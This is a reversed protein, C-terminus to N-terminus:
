QEREASPSIGFAKKYAQSFYAPSNFGVKFLIESVTEDSSQLLEKAKLLRIHRIYNSTSMGTLAKIKRHLQSRSLHLSAALENVSFRDDSLHDLVLQRVKHVFHQNPNEPEAPSTIGLSLEALYKQQLVQRTALLQDLRILLERKEFPKTLYADAGSSLGKLKDAVTTKATLLIVPIHNTRDDQKVATCLEFGDMKPMMVDSIVIDPVKEFAKELGEEGNRSIILQYHDSLCTQLYQIIDLNDEIILLVPLGDEVQEERTATSRFEPSAAGEVNQIKSPHTAFPANNQIPLHLTFTAGEDAKSEVQIEGDMLKVLEKVLALGIGTGQYQNDNKVQHFRNFIHPLEKDPIGIGTDTVKVELLPSNLSSIRKVVVLVKGYENTFKIANSLLNTLITELKKADFDMSLLQEESYCQLNVRKSFAMSEHSAVLYKIFAIVDQQQLHLQEKNVELKSLQLLQNVMSLLKQSNRKILSTKPLVEQSLHKELEETMGQIVTLPTRFEHTINTYISSKLYNIEKLRKGEEMALRRSLQLQYLQYTLFSFALFYSLYAWWTHWWPPTITFAYSMPESWLNSQGKAKVELTYKGHPLNRYDVKPESQPPSWSKDVGEMKYSYQIKSPAAWDIASFHFTLHNFHHPLRLRTPLNQFAIVSDLNARFGTGAFLERGYDEDVLRRYDIFTQNVQLHSVKVIQPPEDSLQFRDLDFMKLGDMTGFWLRNRQDVVFSRRSLNSHNLGIQRDFSIFQVEVPNENEGSFARMQNSRLLSIGKQTSIWLNEEKDLALSSINNHALGNETSYSKFGTGDFRNLGDETGLWINGEADELIARVYNNSLGEQSTYNVFYTGNFCSVGGGLMGFWLRDRSDEYITGVDDSIFGEKESYQLFNEGDFRIIGGAFAGLWIHGHKDQYLARVDGVQLGDEKTFDRIAAGTFESVGASGGLWLNQQQDVLISLVGRQILSQPTIFHTIKEGDYKHLGKDTGLWLNGNVDQAMSMIEEEQLVEKLALHKFGRRNIRNVGTNWTCAWINHQDDKLLHRVYNSSLGDEATYHTFASGNFVSVGGGMYGFWMYGEEDELISLVSNSNLGQETTYTHFSTGDYRVVGGGWTGFWLHGQKDEIIAHVDNTGKGAGVDYHTFNLGDFRHLGTGEGTGIWLQNRSDEFISIVENFALGEDTTYHTFSHGDYRSLGGRTGFWLNGKHDECISLVFNHPLGNETNFYTFHSGDYRCVGGDRTGMWIHGKSDELLAFIHNSPLGEKETFHEFHIGNFRIAGGGLSGLWFDGRRDQIMTWFASTNLNQEIGWFRIDTSANEKTKPSSALVPKPYTALQSVSKVLVANPVTNLSDELLRKGIAKRIIPKAALTQRQTIQFPTTKSQVPFPVQTAKADLKIEKGEIKMPVGTPIELGSSTTMSQKTGKSADTLQSKEACSFLFLFLFLFIRKGLTM